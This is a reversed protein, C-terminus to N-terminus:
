FAALGFPQRDPRLTLQLLEYALRGWYYTYPEAALQDRAEKSSEGYQGFARAFCRVQDDKPLEAETVRAVAAIVAAAKSQRNL